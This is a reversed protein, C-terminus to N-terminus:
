RVDPDGHGSSSFNDRRQMLFDGTWSMGEMSAKSLERLAEPSESPVLVALPRGLAEAENWGYMDEAAKNWYLVLGQPDIAIVAQGVSALLAAQFRAAEGVALRETIDRISIVVGDAIDDSTRLPEINVEIWSVGGDARRVGRTVGRLPEDPELTLRTTVEGFDLPAGDPHFLECPLTPVTLGVLEDGAGGFIRTAAPNASVVVLGDALSTMVADARTAMRTENAKLRTREIAYRISRHLGRASLESKLYYDDAGHQIALVGLEDDARGTLVVLASDHAAGRLADVVALGDGDPLGLDVLLCEYQSGALATGAAALTSVWQVEFLNLAGGLAAMVLSADGASDEVLLVRAPYSAHQENERSPSV